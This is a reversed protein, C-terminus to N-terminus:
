NWSFVRPISLGDIGELLSCVGSIDVEIDLSIEGESSDNEM